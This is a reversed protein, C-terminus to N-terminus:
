PPLSSTSTNWDVHLRSSETRTPEFGAPSSRKQKIASKSRQWNVCYQLDSLSWCVFRFIIDVVICYCTLLLLCCCCVVFLLCCVVVVLAFLFLWWTCFSIRCVNSKSCCCFICVERERPISGRDNVHCAFMSVMTSHSIAQHWFAIWRRSQAHCVIKCQKVHYMAQKASRVDNIQQM